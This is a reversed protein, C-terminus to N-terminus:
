KMFILISDSRKSIMYHYIYAQGDTLHPGTHGCMGVRRDVWRGVVRGVKNYFCFIFIFVRSVQALFFYLFVCSIVFFQIRCMLGFPKLTISAYRENVQPFFFFCLKYRCVCASFIVHTGYTIVYTCMFCAHGQGVM